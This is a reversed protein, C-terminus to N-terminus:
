LRWEAFTSACWNWRKIALGWGSGSSEGDM